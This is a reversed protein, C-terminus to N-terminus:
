CVKAFILFKWCIKSIKLIRQHDKAIKPLRQHDEATKQLRWWIQDDKNIRPFMLCDKAINKLRRSDKTNRTWRWHYETIKALSQCGRATQQVLEKTYKLPYGLHSYRLFFPSIDRSSFFGCTSIEVQWSM